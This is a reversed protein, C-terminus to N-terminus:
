KPDYRVEVEPYNKRLTLFRRLITDYRTTITKVPNYKTKYSPEMNEETSKECKISDTILIENHGACTLYTGRIIVVKKEVKKKYDYVRIEM